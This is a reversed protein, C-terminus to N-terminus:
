IEWRKGRPKLNNKVLDAKSPYSPKNNHNLVVHKLYEQENDIPVFKDCYYCEFLYSANSSIFDDSQNNHEIEYDNSDTQMQNELVELVELV